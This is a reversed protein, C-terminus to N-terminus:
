RVCRNDTTASPVADTFEPRLTCRTPRAEDHTGGRVQVSAAPAKSGYELRDWVVMKGEQIPVGRVEAAWVFCFGDKM